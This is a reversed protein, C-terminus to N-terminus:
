PPTGFITNRNFFIEDRTTTAVGGGSVGSDTEFRGEAASDRSSQNVQRRGRKTQPSANRNVKEAAVGGGGGGGMGLDAGM